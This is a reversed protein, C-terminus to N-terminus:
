HAVAEVAEASGERPQQLPTRQEDQTVSFWYKFLLIGSRVMMSEVEPAQRM